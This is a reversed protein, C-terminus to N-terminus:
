WYDPSNRINLCRSSILEPEEAFRRACERIGKRNMESIPATKLTPDSKVRIIVVSRNKVDPTGNEPKPVKNVTVKNKNPNSNEINPIIASYM